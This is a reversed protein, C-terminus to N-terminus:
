FTFVKTLYMGIGVRVEKMVSPFFFVGFFSFVVPSSSIFNAPLNIAHQAYHATNKKWM